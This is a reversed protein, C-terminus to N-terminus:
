FIFFTFKSFKLVRESNTAIEHCTESNFNKDKECLNYLINKLLTTIHNSRNREQIYPPAPCYMINIVLDMYIEDVIM